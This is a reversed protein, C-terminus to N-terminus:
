TPCTVYQDASLDFCIDLGIYELTPSLERTIETYGPKPPTYFRWRSLPHSTRGDRCQADSASCRYVALVGTGPHAATPIASLIWQDDLFMCRVIEGYQNSILDQVDPWEGCTSPDNPTPIASRALPTPFPGPPQTPHLRADVTALKATVRTSESATAQAANPTAAPSELSGCAVAALALPAALLGLAIRLSSRM